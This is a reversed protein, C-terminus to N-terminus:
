LSLFIIEKATQGNSAQKEDQEETKLENLEQIM